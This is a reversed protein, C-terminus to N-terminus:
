LYKLFYTPQHAPRGSTGEPSPLFLEVRLASATVYSARQSIRERPVAEARARQRDQLISLITAESLGQQQGPHEFKIPNTRAESGGSWTLSALVVLSILRLSFGRRCPARLRNSTFSKQGQSLLSALSRLLCLADPL